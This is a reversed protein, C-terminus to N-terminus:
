EKICKLEEIAEDVKVFKDVPVIYGRKEEDFILVDGDQLTITTDYVSTYNDGNLTTVSHFVFNELKQDVYENKFELTTDEHVRIGPYMDIRPKEIFKEM